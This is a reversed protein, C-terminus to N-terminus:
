TRVRMEASSSRASKRMRGNTDRGSAGTSVPADNTTGSRVGASRQDAAREFVVSPRLQALLPWRALAEYGVTKGDALSVVPQFMPILGTGEAAADIFDAPPIGTSNEVLSTMKYSVSHCHLCVVGAATCIM